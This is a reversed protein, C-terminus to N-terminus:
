NSEGDYMSPLACRAAKAFLHLFPLYKRAHRTAIQFVIRLETRCFWDHSFPRRGTEHADYLAILRHLMEMSLDQLEMSYFRGNLGCRIQDSLMTSNIMSLSIAPMRKWPAWVKTISAALLTHHYPVGLLRSISSVGYIRQLQTVVGDTSKTNNYSLVLM